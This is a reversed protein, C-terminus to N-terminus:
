DGNTSSENGFCVKTPVAVEVKWGANWTAVGVADGPGEDVDKHRDGRDKDPCEFQTAVKLFSSFEEGVCEDGVGSEVQEPREYEKSQM